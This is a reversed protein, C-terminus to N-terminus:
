PKFYFDDWEVEERKYGNASMLDFIKERLDEIFNHEITWQRVDWEDFPFTSLIEFESGETDISIYDIVRPAEHEVLFDHLSITELEVLNAEDAMYGARRDANQDQNAHAKMGGYADAFVFEVREGTRAGICQTSITSSRNARLQKEFSPNPEALLGKWGFQTELLYTNSLLVGDTAGFEVFFGGRKYNTRELVWLDQGLQSTASQELSATTDSATEARAAGPGLQQRKMAITLEHRLLEIETRLVAVQSRPAYAGPREVLANLEKQVDDVGEILLGLGAAEHARRKRALESIDDEPRALFSVASEFHELARDPERSLLALRGLTNHTGSVIIGECFDPPCNWARAQGLFAQGSRKNALQFHAGAVIAAAKGRDKMASIRDLPIEALTHWDGAQWATKAKGLGSRAWSRASKGADSTQKAAAPKQRPTPKKKAATKKRTTAKSKNASM